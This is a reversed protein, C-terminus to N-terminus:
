DLWNELAIRRLQRRRQEWDPLAAAVHAWFRPSHNMERLHALEHVLVYDFLADEMHILRWHLRIAGQASASGWRTRASTLALRAPRVGMRPAWHQASEHLRAQAQQRLWREAAAAIAPAPADPPLPLHLVQRVPPPEALAAIAAAGAQRRAPHLAEPAPLRQLAARRGALGLSLRLWQGRWALYAGDSWAPQAPNAPAHTARETLKAIIWGARSQLAADLDAPRLWHPARVQLGEATIRMGVSRREAATWVYGIRLTRGGSSLRIQRNAHPHSLSAPTNANM